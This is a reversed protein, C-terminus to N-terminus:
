STVCQIQSLPATSQGAYFQRLARNVEAQVSRDSEAVARRVLREVDLELRVQMKVVPMVRETSM